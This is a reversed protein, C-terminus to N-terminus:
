CIFYKIFTQFVQHKNQPVSYQKNQPVSYQPCSLESCETLLGCHLYSPEAEPIWQLTTPLIAPVIRTVHPLIEVNLTTSSLSPPLCVNQLPMYALVLLLQLLHIMHRSCCPLASRWAVAMEEIPVKPMIQYMKFAIHM